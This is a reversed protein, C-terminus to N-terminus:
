QLLVPSVIFLIRRLHVEVELKKFYLRMSCKRESLLAGLVKRLEYISKYDVSKIQEFANETSLPQETNM